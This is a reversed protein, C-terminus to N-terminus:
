MSKHKKLDDVHDDSSTQEQFWAALIRELSAFLLESQITLWERFANTFVQLDNHILSSVFDVTQEFASHLVGLLKPAHSEVSSLVISFADKVFPTISAAVHILTNTTIRLLAFAYIAMANWSKSAFDCSITWLAKMPASAFESIQRYLPILFPYVRRWFYAALHSYLPQLIDVLYEYTAQLYPYLERRTFIICPILAHDIFSRTLDGLSIIFAFIEGLFWFTQARLNREFTHWQKLFKESQLIRVLYDITAITSQQIIGTVPALLALIRRMYYGLLHCARQLAGVARTSALYHCAAPLVTTSIWVIDELIAKITRISGVYVLMAIGHLKAAIYTVLPWIFIMWIEATGLALQRWDHSHAISHWLKQLAVGLRRLFEYFRKIAFFTNEIGTILAPITTERVYNRTAKWHHIGRINWWTKAQNIKAPLWVTVKEFLWADITPASKELYWLLSYLLTRTFHIAGRVFVYITAFPFMLIYHLIGLQNNTAQDNSTKKETAGDSISTKNNINVQESQCTSAPSGSKVAGTSIKESRWRPYDRLLWLFLLLVAIYPLNSLSFLTTLRIM